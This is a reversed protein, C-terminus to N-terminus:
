YDYVGVTVLGVVLLDSFALWLPCGFGTWDLGTRDMEIWYM